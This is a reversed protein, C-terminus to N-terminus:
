ATEMDCQTPKPMPAYTAQSISGSSCFSSSILNPILGARSMRRRLVLPTITGPPTIEEVTNDSDDFRQCPYGSRVSINSRAGREVVELCEISQRNLPWADTRNGTDWAGLRFSTCWKSGRSKQALGHRLRYRYAASRAQGMRFGLSQLQRVCEADTRSQADILRAIVRTDAIHEV